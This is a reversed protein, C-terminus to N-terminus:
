KAVFTHYNRSWAFSGLPVTYTRVSVHWKLIPNPQPLGIHFTILCLAVPAHAEFIGKFLEFTPVSPPELYTSQM